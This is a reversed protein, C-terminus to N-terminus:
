GTIEMGRVTGSGVVFFSEGPSPDGPWWSYVIFPDDASTYPIGDSSTVSDGGIYATGSNVVMELYSRRSTASGLRQPTASLTLTFTEVPV